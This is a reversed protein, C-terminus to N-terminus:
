RDFGDIAFVLGLLQEEHKPDDPTTNYTYGNHELYIRKEGLDFLVDLFQGSFREDRKLIMRFWEKGNRNMKRIATYYPNYEPPNGRVTNAQIIADVFAFVSKESGGSGSAAAPNVLDYLRWYANTGWLSSNGNAHDLVTTGNWRIGADAGADLLLDIVRPGWSPHQARGAAWILVTQGPLPGEKMQFNVDAGARLLLSIVEPRDVNAILPTIGPVVKGGADAQMNVDAGAAIAAEVEQLTGRWLKLFEDANTGNSAVAKKPAPPPTGSGSAAATTVKMFEGYVWGTKGNYRV